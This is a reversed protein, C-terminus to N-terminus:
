RWREADDLPEYGLERRANDIDWIRWRNGSVGFYVGFRVTGPADVACQVLQLLDRHSLLTSFERANTPRDERNVSGIRLCVVSMGHEEAYYRGAAEGMAKAIGYPGDARIPDETTLRAVTAHDLQDYRGAVISAFPEDREALGTVHNSSAFIVRRVGTVRAAEFANITAQLNNTYIEEWSADFRPNAALDVVTDIGAFAGVVDGLHRMDVVVDTTAGSRQDLGQIQRSGGLGGLLIGGIL